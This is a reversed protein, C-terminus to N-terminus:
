LFLRGVQVSFGPLLPSELTDSRGLTAVLRLADDSRQYVEVQRQQWDVLWYEDAGRRAYLDLKAVRDRRENERGPSLIEIVLEPARHLKGDPERAAAFREHSLWAVDPAVDDGNGLILGPAFIAIGRGTQDNWAVLASYACGCAIQHEVHPQTSMYLEGDIIEYLTGDRPLTELDASTWRRSTVMTTEERSELRKL